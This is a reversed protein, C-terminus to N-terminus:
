TLGNARRTSCQTPQSWEIRQRGNWDPVSVPSQTRFEAGPQTLEGVGRGAQEAEGDADSKLATSLGQDHPSPSQDTQDIPAPRGLVMTWRSCNSRHLWQDPLEQGRESFIWAALPKEVCWLADFLGEREERAAVAHIDIFHEVVGQEGDIVTLHHDHLVDIEVAQALVVQQREEALAVDGVNRARFDNAEALNRPEDVDEAPPKLNLLPQGALDRLGNARLDVRQAHRDHHFRRM